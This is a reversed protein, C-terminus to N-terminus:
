NAKVSVKGTLLDQMLGYKATRLKELLCREKEIKESVINLHKVIIDQENKDILPVPIKKFDGTTFSAQNIAPKTINKIEEQVISSSLLSYLFKSETIESPKIRFLNTTYISERGIDRYICVKGIQEVSNIFCLLIDKDDLIYNEINAGQPDKRYWYKINKFDLKGDQINGSIMVPIGIDEEVIKRSLGSKVLSIYDKLQCVDWDKPIWGFGREKYLHPAQEVPPRLQGTSFDIGRTFLDAMMGQKIATHKDILVQTKEILQDITTLIKAIKHQKDLSPYKIVLSDVLTKSLNPQGSGQALYLLKEKANILYYYIFKNSVSGDSDIALVAQNTAADIKLESVQGATAGYMAVLVSGNKVWKASSSKIAKDTIHEETRDVFSQNVETSKVWPINGGFFEPIARSPTGGAFTKAIDGLPKSILDITDSM